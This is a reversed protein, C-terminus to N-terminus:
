LAPKQQTLTITIHTESLHAVAIKEPYYLLDIIDLGLAKGIKDLHQSNIERKGSLIRSIVSEHLNSEVALQIQSMQRDRLCKIINTRLKETTNM